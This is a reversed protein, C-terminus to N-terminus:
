GKPSNRGRLALIVLATITIILLAALGTGGVWRELTPWSSGFFFGALAVVVSWTLAGAVNYFAFSQWRMRAAGAFLAAFVRLGTVFRAIFVTKAGYRGFFWELRQFHRATLRVYRGYRELAKRGVKRGVAYGINDGLVAGGAAVAILLGLHFNGQAAFFGAALLVTEGPVPLGANELMVGLFVVWYGYQTFYGLLTELM